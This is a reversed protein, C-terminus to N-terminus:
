YKIKVKCPMKCSVYCLINLFVEKVSQENNTLQQKNRFM